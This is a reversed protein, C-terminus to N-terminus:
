LLFGLATESRLYARQVPVILQTWGILLPSIGTAPVGRNATGEESCRFATGVRQSPASFHPKAEMLGDSRRKPFHHQVDITLSAWPSGAPHVPGM